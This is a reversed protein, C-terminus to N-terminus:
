LESIHNYFLNDYVINLICKVRLLKIAVEM